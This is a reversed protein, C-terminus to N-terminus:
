VLIRFPQMVLGVFWWLFRKISNVKAVKLHEPAEYNKEDIVRRCDKEYGEMYSRLQSTLEESNVVLMLETDVYTSRLDFNFSGVISINDDITLSKAHYSTGGDYEFLKAGTEIIKKKNRLYDSSAFFNDGNEVSNIVMQFDEVCSGVQQLLELMYDDFVAYPSHVVVQEKAGKMLQVLSYFVKPEKGYVHIDNSLLTIKNTPVTVSEYSFEEFLKPWEEKLYVYREELFEVKDKVKEKEVLSESDFFMKSEDSEWVKNFYEKLQFLSSEKTDKEGNVDNYVLVERDFSKSKAEFEGIFYDFSNRGGLIYGLDDVIIYKDHMRGQTKWPLLINVPNYMKVEINPHSSIAHFLPNSSMRMPGNFGDVLIKVQVGENAKALIVSLIDKTSEGDRMDFTSLIIQEKAKNMMRLREDWASQNTELIMARDVSNSSGYFEETNFNEIYEESVKKPMLFPGIAGIIFYMLIGVVLLLISVKKKGWKKM